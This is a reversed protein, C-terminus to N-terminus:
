KIIFALLTCICFAFVGQLLKMVIYKKMSIDTGQLFYAAQLHVCLGSFGVAFASLALSVGSPLLSIKSLISVASGVELFPLILAYPYGIGLLKRLLGAFISFLTLYACINVTAAGANKVSTLLSFDTNKKFDGKKEDPRVSKSVLGFILGVAIAGLVMSLYLIIGDAYSKRLGLGVGSILFAPGTNNSFGILRECDEKSIEGASYLDKACRVGLPFGCLIGMMFASLGRRDIRFIKEFVASTFALTPFSAYCFIFDALIMFPFISPILVEYCLTLASKVSHAIEDSFSFNLVLTLATIAIPVAASHRLRLFNGHRIKKIDRRLTM